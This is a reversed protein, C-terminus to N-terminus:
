ATADNNRWSFDLQDIVVREQNRYMDFVFHKANEPVGFVALFLYLNSIQKQLGRITRLQQRSRSSLLDNWSKVEVFWTVDENVLVADPRYGLYTLPMVAICDEFPVKGDISEVSLEPFNGLLRRVSLAVLVDHFNPNETWISM